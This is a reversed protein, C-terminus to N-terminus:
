QARIRPDLRPAARAPASPHRVSTRLRRGPRHRVRHADLRARGRGRAHERSRLGASQDRGAVRCGRDRAGRAGGRAGRPLRAGHAVPAAGARAVGLAVLGRAAGRAPDSPLAHPAEPKLLIPNMRVEPNRRAALAQFYQASGMEGGAAVRANNSMNQAKFPASRSDKGRTGAPWHLPSCARAPAARRAAFWSPM